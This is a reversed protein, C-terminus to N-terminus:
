KRIQDHEVRQGDLELRAEGLDSSPVCSVDGGPVTM